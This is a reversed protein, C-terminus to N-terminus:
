AAIAPAPAKPAPTTWFEAAMVYIAALSGLLQESNVSPVVWETGTARFHSAFQSLGTNM